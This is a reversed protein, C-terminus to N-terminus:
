SWRAKAKQQNTAKRRAVARPAFMNKATPHNRARWRLSAMAEDSITNPVKPKAM